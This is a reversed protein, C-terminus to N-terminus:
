ARRRDSLNIVGASEGPAVWRPLAPGALTVRLFFSGKCGAWLDAPLVASGDTWRAGSNAAYFGEDLRADDLEVARAGTLGDDITLAALAVGLRRNDSSGPVIHAPVSTESVLRVDRASAPVVFRATLGQVDPRITRGDAVLHLRAFTEEVRHWGLVVACDELRARVLDVLPGAEHFPRCFPLPGEPRADPVALLDTTEANAFFRRNGCDLYSEAPLGEALLIDHSDLEVHWYTVSEVDVQTITTGNILRCAPILVEGLVGDM